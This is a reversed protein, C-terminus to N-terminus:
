MRAVLAAHAASTGSDRPLEALKLPAVNEGRGACRGCGGIQTPPAGPATDDGATRRQASSPSAHCGNPSLRSSMSFPKAVTRSRAVRCPRRSRGPNAGRLKSSMVSEALPLPRAANWPETASIADSMRRTRPSPASHIVNSRGRAPTGAIIRAISRRAPSTLGATAHRKADGRQAIGVRDGIEHVQCEPRLRPRRIRRRARQLLRRLSDALVEHVAAAGNGLRVARQDADNKPFVVVAREIEAPKGHMGRMAPAADRSREDALGLALRSASPERAHREAHTQHQVVVPPQKRRAAEGLGRKMAVFSEALRRPHRHLSAQASVKASGPVDAGPRPARARAPIARRYAAGRETAGRAVGWGPRPTARRVTM